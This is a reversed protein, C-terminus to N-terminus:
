ALFDGRMTGSVANALEKGPLYGKRGLIKVKDM